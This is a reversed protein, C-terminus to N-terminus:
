GRVPVQARHGGGGGSSNILLVAISLVVVLFVIDSLDFQVFLVRSGRGYSDPWGSSYYSIM